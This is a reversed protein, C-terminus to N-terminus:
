AQCFAEVLAKTRKSCLPAELNANQHLATGVIAADAWPVYETANQETLGSGIWLPAEPLAERLSRLLGLDTRAGTGSGTLILADAGGRMLTDKAVQVPDMPALPAAHKVLVDAAIGLGPGIRNRYILTDRAQGEIIGQDTLMAGVHVNIRVFQANVAAAVALASRADNRLVNTGMVLADGFREKVALAVVSMMGVVHPEVAGKTYPADGLNEIIVGHAGGEALAEADLLARELVKALGPGGRPSGPLPLLHLVGILPRPHSFLREM